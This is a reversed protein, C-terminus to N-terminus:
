KGRKVSPKFAAKAYEEQKVTANTGEVVAIFSRLDLGHLKSVGDKRGDLILDDATDCGAFLDSMGNNWKTLFNDMEFYAKMLTDALPRIEEDMVRIAEANNEKTINAM